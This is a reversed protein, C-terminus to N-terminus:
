VYLFCGQLIKAEWVSLRSSQQDPPRLAWPPFVEVLLTGNLQLMLSGGAWEPNRIGSLWCALFTNVRSILIISGSQWSSILNSSYLRPLSFQTQFGPSERSRRKASKHAITLIVTFNYCCCCFFPQISKSKSKKPIFIQIVAGPLSDRGASARASPLPFISRTTPFSLWRILELRM